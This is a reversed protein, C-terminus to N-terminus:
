IFLGSTWEVAKFFPLTLTSDNIVNSFSFDLSRERLKQFKRSHKELNRMGLSRLTLPVNLVRSHYLVVSKLHKTFVLECTFMQLLRCRNASTGFIYWAVKIYIKYFCFRYVNKM